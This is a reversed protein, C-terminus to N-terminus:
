NISKKLDNLIELLETPIEKGSLSYYLYDIASRIIGSKSQYSSNAMMKLHSITPESINVNMSISITQEEKVPRGLKKKM